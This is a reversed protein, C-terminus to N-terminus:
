GQLQCRQFIKSKCVEDFEFKKLRKNKKEKLRKLIKNAEKGLNYKLGDRM